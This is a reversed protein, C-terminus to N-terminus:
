KIPHVNGVFSTIAGVKLETSGEVNVQFGNDGAHIASQQTVSAYNSDIKSQSYSFSGGGGAGITNPRTISSTTPVGNERTHSPRM